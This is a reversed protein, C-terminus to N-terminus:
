FINKISIQNVFTTSTEFELTTKTTEKQM